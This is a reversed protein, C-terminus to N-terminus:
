VWESENMFAYSKTQDSWNKNHKEILIVGQRKLSDLIRYIQGQKWFPFLEAWAAVSNAVWTRGDHEDLNNAKKCRILSQLRHIMISENVGHKIATNIEFLHIQEKTKKM